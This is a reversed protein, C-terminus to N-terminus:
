FKVQPANLPPIANAAAPLKTGSNIKHANRFAPVHVSVALKIGYKLHHAHNIM